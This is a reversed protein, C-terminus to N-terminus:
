LAYACSVRIAGPLQDDSVSNYKVGVIREKVAVAHTALLIAHMQRVPDVASRGDSTAAGRVSFAYGGDLLDTYGIIGLKDEDSLGKEEAMALGLSVPGNVANSFRTSGMIDNFASFRAM